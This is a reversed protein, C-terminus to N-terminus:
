RGQMAKRSSEVMQFAENKVGKTIDRLQGIAQLMQQSGREQEEMASLVTREQAAVTKIGNDIADFKNLVNETSRTIKDIEEKIKKLVAGITKSQRSSSEALKRIEDAVVAFGRGSEGAHAAEIAANMSLLNTQSSINQMVSNIELLSESENAIERIEAAVENLGNHGVESATQLNWVHQTNESLSKTVSQINAIMEEIAAASETVAAAQETVHGNLQESIAGIGEQVLKDKEREKYYDRLDRSFTIVFNKGDVTIRHLVEETPVPTGDKHQFVWEYRSHGEKLTYKINDLSKQFSASGDPQYAPVFATFNDAFIKKDPIGFLVEAEKNVDIINGNEDYLVCLLPTADMIAQMREKFAEERKQVALSERLDEVFGLAHDEGDFYARVLTIRTPLKEGGPSRQLWEFVQPKNEIAANVYREMMDQSRSGDPQLEPVLSSFKLCYEEKDAFGYLKPAAANCYVLCSKKDIMYAPMPLTEMVLHMGEGFSDCGMKKVLRMVHFTAYAFLGFVFPAIIGLCLLRNQVQVFVVSTVVFVLVALIVSGFVLKIKNKRAEEQLRKAIDMQSVINM